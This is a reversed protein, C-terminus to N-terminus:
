DSPPPKKNRRAPWRLSAYSVNVVTGDSKIMLGRGSTVDEAEIELDDICVREHMDRALLVGILQHVKM